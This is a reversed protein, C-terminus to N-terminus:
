SARARIPNRIEWPASPNIQPSTPAPLVHAARAATAPKSRLRCVIM